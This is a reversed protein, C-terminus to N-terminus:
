DEIAIGLIIISVVAFVSMCDIWVEASVVKEFIREDRKSGIMGIKIEKIM